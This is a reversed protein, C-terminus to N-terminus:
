GESGDSLVYSKWTFKACDCKKIPCPGHGPALLTSHETRLHGCYCREDVVTGRRTKYPFPFTFPSKVVVKKKM